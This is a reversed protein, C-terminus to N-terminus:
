LNYSTNLHIVLEELSSPSTFQTGLMGRYCGEPGEFCTVRYGSDSDSSRWVSICRYVYIYIHIYKNMCM